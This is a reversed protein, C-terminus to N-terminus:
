EPYGGEKMADTYYIAQSGDMCKAEQNRVENRWLLNSTSASTKGENCWGRTEDAFLMSVEWILILSVLRIMENKRM